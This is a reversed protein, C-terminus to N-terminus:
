GAKSKLVLSCDFNLKVYILLVFFLQEAFKFKTAFEVDFEPETKTMVSGNFLTNFNM